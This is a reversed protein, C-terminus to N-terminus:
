FKSFSSNFACPRCESIRALALAAATPPHKCEGPDANDRASRMHVWEQSGGATLIDGHDIIRRNTDVTIKPFRKAFTRAIRTPRLRVGMPSVQKPRSSFVRACRFWRPVPPKGTWLWSVVGASIDPEPLNWWRRRFILIRPWRMGEPASDNVCFLEADRNHAPQWHTVRLLPRSTPKDELM